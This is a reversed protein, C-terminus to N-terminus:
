SMRALWLRPQELEATTPLADPGSFAQALAESGRESVVTDCFARGVEYQRMKLELGLLRELVRWPMGRNARRRTMAARLSALSPLVEAGVADMVHEAHGEILSMACQMREVIAWRDEGLTVRMVEGRRLRALLSRMDDARLGRLLDAVSVSVQMSEMLDRMLGALHGQLWAAGSFQVAHTVEHIAVWSTLEDHDVQLTRAAHALNPGVLLLRPTTQPNLLEIDYQGLVRQSLVGALAGVQAGLLLGSATHMARTLPAARGFTGRASLGREALPELVPRMSSLNAAIWSPRDVTELPPLDSPTGLGSYEGVRAAFTAAIDAVGGAPEGAYQPKGAILEGVWQAVDWDIADM